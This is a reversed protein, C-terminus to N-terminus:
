LFGPSAFMAVVMYCLSSIGICLFGHFAALNDRGICKNMWPCHHDWGVVCVKCWECHLCGLPQVISCVQCSRAGNSPILQSKGAKRNGDTSNPPIIGPDRLACRLFSRATLVTVAFGIVTHVRYAHDMAKSVFAFGIGLIFGLMIISCYWHPGVFITTLGFMPVVHIAGVRKYVGEVKLTLEDAKACSADEVDVRSVLDAWEGPSSAISDGSGGLDEDYGRSPSM